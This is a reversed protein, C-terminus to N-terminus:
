IGQKCLLAAGLIGADNGMMATDILNKMNIRKDKFYMEKAVRERLPELLYDGENSVGGGILVIEPDFTNVLNTIGCALYDYFKELVAIATKDGSKSAIFPIRADMGSSSENALRSLLSSPNHSVAEKAQRILSNASAYMELCGKRGCTCLIGDMCIVTHGFEVAVGNNGAYVRGNIVVGSGLGTGITITASNLAGRAAGAYHEALAACNADNGMFIGTDFHKLFEDRLPVNKFDINNTYLVIGNRDDVTGPSGIGIGGIDSVKIDLESMMKRSLDIMDNVIFNWRREKITPISRKLIIRNNEDIIGGAINTGGLDIGVYYM